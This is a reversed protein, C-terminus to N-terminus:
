RSCGPIERHLGRRAFEAAAVHNQGQAAPACRASEVDRALIEGLDGVLEDVGLGVLTPPDQHDAAAVRRHLGGHAQGM